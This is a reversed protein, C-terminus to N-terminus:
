KATSQLKKLFGRAEDSSPFSLQAESSFAATIPAALLVEGSQSVFGIQRGVNTSSLTKMKAAGADTFVLNLALKGNEDLGLKASTLDRESLTQGPNVLRTTGGSEEVIGMVFRARTLDLTDDLRGIQSLGIALVIGSVGIGAAIM